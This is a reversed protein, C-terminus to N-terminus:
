TWWGDVSNPLLINYNFISLHDGGEHGSPSLNVFSSEPGGTWHQVAVMQNNLMQRSPVVFATSFVHKAYSGIV